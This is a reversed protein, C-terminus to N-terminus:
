RSEKAAAPAKAAKRAAARERWESLRVRLPPASAARLYDARRVTPVPLSLGPYLSTPFHM